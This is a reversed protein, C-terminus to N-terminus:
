RHFRPTWREVMREEDEGDEEEEIVDALSHCTLVTL